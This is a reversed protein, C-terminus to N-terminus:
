EILKLLIGLAVSLVLTEVGVVQDDLVDLNTPISLVEM